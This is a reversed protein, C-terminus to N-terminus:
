VVLYPALRADERLPLGPRAGLLQCKLAAVTAALALLSERPLGACLGYLVAGIFADGAGTTDVVQEPRLKQATSVALTAQVIPGTDASERQSASSNFSTLPTERYVPRQSWEKIAEKRLQQISTDIDASEAGTSGSGPADPSGEGNRALGVPSGRRDLMVCGSAGLTVIVFALQPLRQMMELLASGLGLRGTWEQLSLVLLVICCPLVALIRSAVIHQLLMYYVALYHLVLLPDRYGTVTAWAKSWASCAQASSVEPFNESCVVFDSVALLENLGERPKEADLLIPM